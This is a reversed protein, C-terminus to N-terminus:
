TCYQAITAGLSTSAQRLARIAMPFHLDFFSAWELLAGRARPSRPADIAAPRASTLPDQLDRLSQHATPSDLGYGDVLDGLRGVDCSAGEVVVEIRLMIEQNGDSSCM